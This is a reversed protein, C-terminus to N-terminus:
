AHETRFFERKFTPTIASKSSYELDLLSIVGEFITHCFQLLLNFIDM